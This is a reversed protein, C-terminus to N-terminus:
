KHIHVDYVDISITTIVKLIMSRVFKLRNRQGDYIGNKLKFVIYDETM